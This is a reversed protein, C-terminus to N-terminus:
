RILLIKRTRVINTQLRIFYLGSPVLDGQDDRGKWKVNHIGATVSGYVLTRVPTGLNDYIVLRINGNTDPDIPVKFRINTEPNFPNPYNPLLEYTESTLAVAQISIPGHFTRMGQYDVDAIKYWYLKSHSIMADEYIYDKATNSNGAGLLSPINEYSAIMSYTGNEKTTRYVQFGLNNLESQTTWSLVIKGEQAKAAFDSLMVPLATDNFLVFDIQTGGNEISYFEFSITSADATIIMTGYNANYQFMTGAPPTSSFSDLSRGGAGTVFYPIINGDNNDDRHIRQYSHHHGCLVASAGWDEYPWRMIEEAKGASYPPHHMYVIKWISSSAALQTQLWQAQTSTASIGDPESSNSNLAFFHVPGRIFDYYRENGSTNSSPIDAGPLTFYSLYISMNDHNGPSPFFRNETSGNGYVGQYSGIYNSFYQGVNVDFNNGYSNDGTTVIFDVLSNDILDAVAQENANDDGYDGIAAFKVSQLFNLKASSYQGQNEGSTGIFIEDTESYQQAVLSCWLVILLFMVKFM